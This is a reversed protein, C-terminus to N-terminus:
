YETVLIRGVESSVQGLARAADFLALSGDRNRALFGDPDDGECQHLREGARSRDGGVHRASGSPGASATLRVAFGVGFPSM